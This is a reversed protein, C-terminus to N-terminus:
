PKYFTWWATILKMNSVLTWGCLQCRMEWIVAYLKGRRNSAPPDDTLEGATHVTSSQINVAPIALYSVYLFIRRQLATICQIGFCHCQHASWTQRTLDQIPPNDSTLLGKRELAACYITWAKLATTGEAATRPAAGPPTNTLSRRDWCCKSQPCQFQFRM